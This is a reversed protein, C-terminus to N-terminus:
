LSSAFHYFLLLLLSLYVIGKWKGMFSIIKEIVGDVVTSADRGDFDTVDYGPHLLPLWNNSMFDDGDFYLSHGGKHHRNLFNDCSFGYFGIKGAMGTQPIIAESLWLVYDRGGCDNIVKAGTLRTIPGWEYDSKLVSGSLVLLDLPISFGSKVLSEVARVSIYTGFSHSFIKIPTGPNEEILEKLKNAFKKVERDRFYPIFFSPATFYGYKYSFFDLNGYKKCALQKLRIQWQGFTRIGHVTIVISRPFDIKDKASEMSYSISEALTDLWCNNAPSAEILSFCYKMFDKRYNEIDITNATIGLIRGPLRFSERRNIEDLLNIGHSHTPSEGVRKPLIVDLILIDYYSKRLLLKAEDYSNAEDISCKKDEEESQILLKHKIRGLREVDDDVILINM